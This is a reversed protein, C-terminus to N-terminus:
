AGTRRTKPESGSLRLVCLCRPRDRGSLLATTSYWAGDTATQSWSQALVPSVLPCELCGTMRPDGGAWLVGRGHRRVVPWFQCPVSYGRPAMVELDLLSSPGSVRGHTCFLTMTVGMTVGGYLLRLFQDSSAGYINRSFVLIQPPGRYCAFFSIQPPLGWITFLSVSRLPAEIWIAHSSISRLPGIYYAFFAIQPGWYLIFLFSGLPGWITHFFSM